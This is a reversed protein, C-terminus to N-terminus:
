VQLLFGMAFLDCIRSDRTCLIDLVSLDVDEVVVGHWAVGLPLSSEDKYRSRPRQSSVWLALRPRPAATHGACTVAWGEDRM